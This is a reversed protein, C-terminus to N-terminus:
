KRRGRGPSRVALWRHVAEAALDEPSCGREAAEERLKRELDNPLNLEIEKM